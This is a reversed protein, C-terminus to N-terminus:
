KVSAGGANQGSINTNKELFITNKIRETQRPTEISLGDCRATENDIKLILDHLKMLSIVSINFKIKEFLSLTDFDKRLRDSSKLLGLFNEITINADNIKSSDQISKIVRLRLPNPTNIRIANETLIRDLNRKTVNVLLRMYEDQESCSNQLVNLYTQFFSIDYFNLLGYDSDFDYDFITFDEVIEVLSNNDFDINMLYYIESFDDSSLSKCRKYRTDLTDDITSNSSKLELLKGYGNVYSQICDNIENYLKLNRERSIKIEADSLINTMTNLMKGKEIEKKYYSSDNDIPIDFIKDVLDKMTDLQSKVEENNNSTEELILNINHNIMKLGSVATSNENEASFSYNVSVLLFVGLLLFKKGFM